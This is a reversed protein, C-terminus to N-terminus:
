NTLLKNLRNILLACESVPLNSAWALEMVSFFPHIGRPLVVPPVLAEVAIRVALKYHPRDLGLANKEWKDKKM